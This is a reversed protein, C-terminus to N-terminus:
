EKKCPVNLEFDIIPFRRKANFTMSLICQQKDGGVALTLLCLIILKNVIKKFISVLRRM